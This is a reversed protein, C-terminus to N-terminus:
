SVIVIFQLIGSEVDLDQYIGGLEKIKEKIMEKKKEVSDNNMGNSILMGNLKIERNVNLGKGKKTEKIEVCREEISIEEDINMGLLNVTELFHVEGHKNYIRFEKVNRLEESSM